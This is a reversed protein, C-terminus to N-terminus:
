LRKINTPSKNFYVRLNHSQVCNLKWFDVSLLSSDNHKLLHPASMIVYQLIVRLKNWWELCYHRFAQEKKRMRQLPQKSLVSSVSKYNNGQCSIERSVTLLTSLNFLVNLTREYHVLWQGWQHRVSTVHHVCASLQTLSTDDIWPRNTATPHRPM